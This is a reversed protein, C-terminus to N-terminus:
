TSRTLVEIKSRSKWKKVERERAYALEKTVYEESYAIIWDNTKGTFGNHNSNHKRLREELQDATHGVYFKNIKKSFLIYFHPM